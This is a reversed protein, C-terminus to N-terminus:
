TTTSKTKKKEPLLRCVLHGRSQLESTHEESRIGRCPVRRTEADLGTPARRRYSPSPRHHSGRCPRSRRPLLSSAAVATPARGDSRFLTHLSLTSTSTPPPHDFFFFPHCM